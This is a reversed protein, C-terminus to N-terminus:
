STAERRSPCGRLILCDRPGRGSHAQAPATAPVHAAAGGGVMAEADGEAVGAHGDALKNLAHAKRRTRSAFDAARDQAWTEATGTQKLAELIGPGGSAVDALM